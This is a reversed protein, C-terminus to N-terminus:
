KRVIFAIIFIAFVKPIVMLILVLSINICFCTYVYGFKVTSIRWKSRDLKKWKRWIQKHNLDKFEIRMRWILLKKKSNKSESLLHSFNYINLFLAKFRLFVRQRDTHTLLKAELVKLFNFFWLLEASAGLFSISPSCKRKGMFVIYIYKYALTVWLPLPSPRPPTIAFM